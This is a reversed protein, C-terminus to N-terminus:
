CAKTRDNQLRTSAMKAAVRFSLKLMVLLADDTTADEIDIALTPDEFVLNMRGDPCFEIELDADAIHWEAQLGGSSTPVITPMMVGDLCFGTLVDMATEAAKDAVPEAGYSDWDAPLERLEDIRQSITLRAM